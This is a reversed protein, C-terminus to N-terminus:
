GENLGEACLLDVWRGGENRNIAGTINFVREGYVARMKAVAQPNAFQDRYRVTIKHSVESQGAEAAILERVSLPNLAAYIKRDGDTFVDAWGPILQGADDQVEGPAQILIRKNLTNALSM